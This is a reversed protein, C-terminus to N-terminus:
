ERAASVAAAVCTKAGHSSKRPRSTRPCRSIYRDTSDRPARCVGTPQVVHRDIGAAYAVSGPYSRKRPRVYGCRRDGLEVSAFLTRLVRFLLEATPGFDHIVRLSGIVHIIMIFPDAIRM